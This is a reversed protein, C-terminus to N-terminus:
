YNVLLDGASTRAQTLYTSISHGGVSATVLLGPVGDVTSSSTTLTANNPFQAQVAALTGSTHTNVHDVYYAIVTEMDSEAQASDRAASIPTYSRLLSGGLMQVTLLGLFAMVILVVIVEILTFGHSRRGRGTAPAKAQITTNRVGGGM